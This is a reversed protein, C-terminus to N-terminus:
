KKESSGKQEAARPADSMPSSHVTKITEPEHLGIANCNGPTMIDEFSTDRTSSAKTIGIANGNGHTHLNKFTTRTSFNGSESFTPSTAHDPITTRNSSTGSSTPRNPPTNSNQSTDSNQSAGNQYLVVAKKNGDPKGNVMEVVDRKRDAMTQTEKFQETSNKRNLTSIILILATKDHELSQFHQLIRPEINRVKRVWNLRSILRHKPGSTYNACLEKLETVKPAMAEIIRSVQCTQLTRNEQISLAIDALVDLQDRWGQCRAPAHQLFDRIQAISEHITYATGVLQGAAVVAGFVEM